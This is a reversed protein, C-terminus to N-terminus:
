LANLLDRIDSAEQQVSDEPLGQSPPGGRGIFLGVLGLIGAAGFLSGEVTHGALILIFTLIILLIAIVFGYLLRKRSLDYDQELKQKIIKLKRIDM